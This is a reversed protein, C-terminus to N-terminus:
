KLLGPNEYVNGAVVLSIYNRHYFSLWGNPTTFGFAAQENYYKVESIIEGAETVLEGSCVVKLIDGEYVEKGNKDKIGTFQMTIIGDAYVDFLDNIYAQSTVGTKEKYNMKESGANWFRFKIERNM